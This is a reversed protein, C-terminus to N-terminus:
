VYLGAQGAAFFLLPEPVVKPVVAALVTLQM